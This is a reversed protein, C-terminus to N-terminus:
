TNYKCILIFQMGNGTNIIEITGDIDSMRKVMNYLGNGKEMEKAVDFGKGGLEQIILRFSNTKEESSILVKKAGSYKAINHLIEKVALFINRRKEGTIVMKNEAIIEFSIDINYEDLYQSAYRRIYSVLNETNDYRSNMAWIIDGMNSVLDNSYGAIKQIEDKDSSDLLAKDSLYKIVSLGSGIEDHMELAIRNREKELLNKKEIESKQIEIIFNKNHIKRLVFITVALGVLGLFLLAIIFLYKPDKWVPPPMYVNLKQASLSGGTGCFDIDPVIKKTKLIWKKLIATCPIAISDHIGGGGCRWEYKETINNYVHSAIYNEGEIVGAQASFNFDYEPLGVHMIFVDYIEHWPPLKCGPVDSWYGQTWTFQFLSDLMKESFCPCKLEENTKLFFLDKWGDSPKDQFTIITTDIQNSQAELVSLFSFILIVLGLALKLRHNGM